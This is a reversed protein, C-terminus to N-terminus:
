WNKERHQKRGKNRENADGRITLDSFNASLSKERINIFSTILMVNIFLM